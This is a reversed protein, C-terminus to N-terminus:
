SFLHPNEDAFPHLSKLGKEKPLADLLAEAMKFDDPVTIKINMPSGPVVTIPHGLQEVLSAEDTFPVDDRKSYADMLLERRFVQPTQALWLQDRSVTEVIQHRDSKLTEVRKITSTIPIGPIAAEYKEAAEFVDDIWGPTLLPRAADHVAVFDVDAHVRGLANEVSDAREEGGTVIEIDMFALNPRYKEKFWDLDEPNIVVLTQVVDKRNVFHEATRVWIPRGKLEVFPKKRRQASFRTSQGAAPLIVAFRSM